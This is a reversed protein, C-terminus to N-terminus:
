VYMIAAAAASSGRINQEPEEKTADSERTQRTVGNTDRTVVKAVREARM